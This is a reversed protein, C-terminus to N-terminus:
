LGHRSLITSPLHVWCYVKAMWQWSCITDWTSRCKTSDVM